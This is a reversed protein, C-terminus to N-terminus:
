VIKIKRKVRRQGVGKGDRVVEDSTNERQAEKFKRTYYSYVSFQM